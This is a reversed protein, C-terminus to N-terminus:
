AVGLNAIAFQRDKVHAHMAKQLETSMTEIFHPKWKQWVREVADREDLDGLEMLFKDEDARQEDTLVLEPEVPADGPFADDEPPPPGPQSVKRTPAPKEPEPDRRVPDSRRMPPPANKGHAKRDAEVMMEGQQDKDEEAAIGLGSCYSYRRMYTVNGALDKLARDDAGARVSGIRVEHGEEHRLITDIWMTGGESRLPQSVSLGHKSLFPRCADLCSALDAYDFEYLKRGDKEVKATRDKIPNSVEAQFAAFAKNFAARRPAAIAEAEITAELVKLQISEPLGAFVTPDLLKAVSM